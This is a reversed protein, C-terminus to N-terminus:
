NVLDELWGVTSSHIRDQWCQMVYDKFPHDISVIGNEQEPTFPPYIFYEPFTCRNAAYEDWMEKAEATSPGPAPPPTTVTDNRGGCLQLPSPKAPKSADAPTLTLPAPRSRKVVTEHTQAGSESLAPQPLAAIGQPIDADHVATTRGDHVTGHSWNFNGAQGFPQTHCHSEGEVPPRISCGGLASYYWNFNGSQELTQTHYHSEAGVVPVASCGGVTSRSSNFSSGQVLRQTNCHSEAEPFSRTSYDGVTYHSSDSQMFAQTHYCTQAFTQTHYRSEAAAFPLTSCGGATSHSLSFNSRQTFTQTHYCSEAGVSSFTSSGDVSHGYHLQQSTQQVEYLSSGDYPLAQYGFNVTAPEPISPPPCTPIQPEPIPPPPCPPTQPETIPPSPCPPTQPEPIPPPPCPPTQPETIPPPPCPPTQPEFVDDDLEEDTDEMGFISRLEEESSTRSLTTQPCSQQACHELMTDWVQLVCEKYQHDTEVIMPEQEPTFPPNTFYQSPSMQLLENYKEWLTNDEDASSESLAGVPTPRHVPLHTSADILTESDEDNLADPVIGSSVTQGLTDNVCESVCVAERDEEEEEEEEEDDDDNGSDEPSSLSDNFCSDSFVSCEDDDDSSM